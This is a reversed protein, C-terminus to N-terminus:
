NSEIFRKSNTITYLIRIIFFLGGCYCIGSLILVYSSNFYNAFSWKNSKILYYIALFFLSCSLNAFIIWFQRIPSLKLLETKTKKENQNVEKASEKITNISIGGPTSQVDDELQKKLKELADAALEKHRKEAISFTSLLNIIIPVVFTITAILLRSFIDICEKMLLKNITYTYGLCLYICPLFVVLNTLLKAQGNM